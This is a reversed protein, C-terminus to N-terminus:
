NRHYRPFVFTAITPLAQWHQAAIRDMNAAYPPACCAGRRYRDIRSCCLQLWAVRTWGRERHEIAETALMAVGLREDFNRTTKLTM